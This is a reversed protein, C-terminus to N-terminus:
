YGTAGSLYEGGAQDFAPDTVIRFGNIDLLMCATDIQTIRLEM